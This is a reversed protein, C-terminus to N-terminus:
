RLSRRDVLFVAALLGAISGFSVLLLMEVESFPYAGMGWGCSLGFPNEVDDIEEPALSEFPIPIIPEIDVEAAPALLPLEDILQDGPQVIQDHLFPAQKITEYRANLSDASAAIADGKANMWAFLGTALLLATLAAFIRPLLSAADTM